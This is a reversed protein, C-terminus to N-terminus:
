LRSFLNLLFGSFLVRELALAQHHVPRYKGSHLRPPTENNVWNVPLLLSGVTVVMRTRAAAVARDVHAEVGDGGNENEVYYPRSRVPVVGNM